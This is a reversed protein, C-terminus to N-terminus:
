DALKTLWVFQRLTVDQSTSVSFVFLGLVESFLKQLSSVVCCGKKALHRLFLVIFARMNQTKVKFGCREQNARKNGSTTSGCSFYLLLFLASLSIFFSRPAAMGGELRPLESLLSSLLASSLLPPTHTRTHTNVVSWPSCPM